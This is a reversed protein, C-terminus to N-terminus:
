PVLNMLIFVQGSGGSNGIALDGRGDGNIDGAARPTLGGSYTLPEPSWQLDPSLLDRAPADLINAGLFIRVGQAPDDAALAGTIALDDLGDGDIDSVFRVINVADAGPVATDLIV